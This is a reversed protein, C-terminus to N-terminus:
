VDCDIVMEVKAIAAWKNGWQRQLQLITEDEEQCESRYLEYLARSM